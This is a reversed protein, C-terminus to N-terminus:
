APVDTKETNKLRNSKKKQLTRPKSKQSTKTKWIKGNRKIVVKTESWFMFKTCAELYEMGKVQDELSINIKNDISLDYEIKGAYFEEHKNKKLFDWKLKVGNAQPFFLSVWGKMNNVQFESLKRSLMLMNRHDDIVQNSM